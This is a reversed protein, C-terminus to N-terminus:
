QVGGLAARAALFEANTSELELARALHQRALEREGRDRAVCHRLFWAQAALEKSRGLPRLVAEAEDLRGLKYLARGYGLRAAANADPQQTMWALREAAAAYDGIGVYLAVAASSAFWCQPSRALIRRVEVIANTVQDDPVGSAGPWVLRIQNSAIVGQNLPTRQLFLLAEDTYAVLAWAPDAQLQRALELLPQGELMPLLVGTVQRAQFKERWSPDASMIPFYEGRWFEEPYADCRGDVFVKFKPYLFWLMSGGFRWENCLNQAPVERALFEYISQPYFYRNLGFGFPLTRDPIFVLMVGAAWALPLAAHGWRFLRPRPAVVRALLWAAYPVAVIVFFPIARQASAALYGLALAPLFFRLSFHRWGILQLLATGGLLGFFFPASALTPPQYELIISRWYASSFASFPITLIRWGNPNIVQLSLVALAVALVLGTPRVGCERWSGPPVNPGEESARAKSSRAPWGWAIAEAVAVAALFVFGYAVGSHTNAWVAFWLPLGMWQWRRARGWRWDLLGLGALLLASILDPRELFRPRMALVAVTALWFAWLSNRGSVRWATRWLLYILATALLAKCVILGKVGAAQHVLYFLVAPAWQQAYWVADPATYSFLNVAPVRHETLVYAGTRIYYGIDADCVQFFAGLFCFVLLGALGLLELSRQSWGAPRGPSASEGPSQPTEPM